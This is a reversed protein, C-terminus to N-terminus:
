HRLKPIEPPFYFRLFAWSASLRSSNSSSAMSASTPSNFNAVEMLITLGINKNINQNGVPFAFWFCCVVIIQRTVSKEDQSPSNARHLDLPRPGFRYQVQIDFSHNKLLVGAGSFSLIQMIAARKGIKPLAAACPNIAWIFANTIAPWLTVTSDQFFGSEFGFNFM